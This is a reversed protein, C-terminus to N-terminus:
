LNVLQEKQQRFELLAVEDKREDEENELETTTKYGRKKNISEVLKEVKQGLYSAAFAAPILTIATAGLAYWLNETACYTAIGTAAASGFWVTGATVDFYREANLRKKKQEINQKNEM